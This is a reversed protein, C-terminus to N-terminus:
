SRKFIVEICDVLFLPNERLKEASPIVVPVGALLPGLLETLHDIFGVGTKFCCVDDPQYPQAKAMWRLRNLLGRLTGCVGKAQGTSGSTYLIYVYPVPPSLSLLPPSPLQNVSDLVEAPSSSNHSPSVDPEGLFPQTVHDKCRQLSLILVSQGLVTLSSTTYSSESALRGSSTGRNSESSGSGGFEQVATSCAEQLRPLLTSTTLMLQPRCDSLILQIKGPPWSPDIPVFAAGTASVALLSVIYAPSRELILAVHCQPARKEDAPAHQHEPCQQGQSQGEDGGRTSKQHCTCLVGAGCGHDLLKKSLEALLTEAASQVESTSFPHGDSILCTSCEAAARFVDLLSPQEGWREM